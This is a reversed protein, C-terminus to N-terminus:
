GAPDARDHGLVTAAHRPVPHDGAGAPQRGTVLALRLGQELGLTDYKATRADPHAIVGPPRRSVLARTVRASVQASLMRSWPRWRLDGGFDAREPSRPRADEADPSSRSSWRSM